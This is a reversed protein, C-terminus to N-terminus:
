VETGLTSMPVTRAIRAILGNGHHVAPNADNNSAYSVDLEADHRMSKPTNFECRRAPTRALANTFDVKQM